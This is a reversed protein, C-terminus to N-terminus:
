VIPTEQPIHKYFIVTSCHCPNGCIPCIAEPMRETYATWFDEIVRFEKFGLNMLISRRIDYGADDKGYWLDAFVLSSIQSLKSLVLKALKQAIEKALVPNDRFLEPSVILATIASSRSDLLEFILDNTLLDGVLRAYYGLRDDGLTKGLCVGILRDDEDLAGYLFHGNRNQLFPMAEELLFFGPGYFSAILRVVEGALDTDKLREYRIKM